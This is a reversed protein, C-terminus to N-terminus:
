LGLIWGLAEEYVSPPALVHGGQFEIWRTKWGLRELFERDRKMESYRFDGPSALFVAIKGRACEDPHKIYYPHMMGTNIVVGRVLHPRLAALSHSFMGGGSYGTAVIRNRDIPLTRVADEIVPALGSVMENNKVGNRFVKSALIICKHKASASKWVNIMSPANGSPSFAVVLPYRRSYDIGSPVYIVAEPLDLVREAGANSASAALLILLAILITQRKM